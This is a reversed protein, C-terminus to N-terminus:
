AYRHTRAHTDAICVNYPQLGDFHMTTCMMEYLTFATGDYFDCYRSFNCFFPTPNQRPPKAQSYNCLEIQITSRATYVKRYEIPSM